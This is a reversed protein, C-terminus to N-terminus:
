FGGWPQSSALEAVCFLNMATEWFYMACNAAFTPLNWSSGFDLGSTRQDSVGVPFKTGHYFNWFDM